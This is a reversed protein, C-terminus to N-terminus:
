KKGPDEGCLSTDAFVLLWTCGLAPPTALSFLDKFFFPHLEQVHTVLALPDLSFFRNGKSYGVM